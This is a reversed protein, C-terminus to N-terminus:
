FVTRLLGNEDTWKLIFPRGTQSLVAVKGRGNDKIWISLGCVKMVNKTVLIGFFTMLYLVLLVENQDDSDTVM